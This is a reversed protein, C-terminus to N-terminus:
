QKEIAGIDAQGVRPNGLLDVAPASATDGTDIASSGIGLALNEVTQPPATGWDALVADAAPAAPLDASLTLTNTGGNVATITRAVGRAVVV